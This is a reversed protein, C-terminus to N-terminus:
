HCPCLGERVVLLLCPGECLVFVAGVVFSDGRVRLISYMSILPPFAWSRKGLRGMQVGFPDNELSRAQSGLEVKHKESVLGGGM